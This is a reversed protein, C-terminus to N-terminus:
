SCCVVGCIVAAANSGDLKMILHSGRPGSACYRADQRNYRPSTTGASIFADTAVILVLGDTM